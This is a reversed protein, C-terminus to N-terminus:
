IDPNDAIHGLNEYEYLLDNPSICGKPALEADIIVQVLKSRKPRIQKLYFCVDGECLAFCESGSCRRFVDNVLFIEGKYKFGRRPQGDVMKLTMDM